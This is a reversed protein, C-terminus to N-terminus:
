SKNLLENIRQHLEPNNKIIQLLRDVSRKHTVRAIADNKYNMKKAIIKFREGRMRLRLINRQKPKLQQFAERVCNTWEKNLLLGYSAEKSELFDGVLDINTNRHKLENRKEEKCLNKLIGKLYVKIQHPKDTKDKAINSVLIAIANHLVGMGKQKALNPNMSQSLLYTAYNSLSKHQLYIHKMALTRTTDSHKILKVLEEDSYNFEM